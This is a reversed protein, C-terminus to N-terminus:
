PKKEMKTLNKSTKIEKRKEKKSKTPKGGNSFHSIKTPAQKLIM